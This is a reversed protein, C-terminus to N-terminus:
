TGKRFWEIENYTELNVCAIINCFYCKYIEEFEDCKVIEMDLECEKCRM